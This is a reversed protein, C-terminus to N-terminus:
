ESKWRKRREKGKTREEPLDKQGCACRKVQYANAVKKQEISLAHRGDRRRPILPLFFVLIEYFIIEPVDHNAMQARTHPKALLGIKMDTARAMSPAPAPNVIYSRREGKGRQQQEHDQQVRLYLQGLTHEGKNTWRSERQQRGTVTLTRLACKSKGHETTCGDSPLNLMWHFGCPEGAVSTEVAFLLPESSVWQM